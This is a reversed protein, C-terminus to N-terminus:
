IIKDMLHKCDILFAYLRSVLPIKFNKEKMLNWLENMFSDKKRWSLIHGVYRTRVKKWYNVDFVDSYGDLKGLLDLAMMTRKCKDCRSCNLKGSDYYAENGYKNVLFERWCVDLFRKSLPHDAILETKRVRSKGGDSVFIETSETSLLPALIQVCHEVVKNDFSFHEFSTCSAISYKRFLKQLSLVTSILRTTVCQNFNYGGFLLGMNSEVPLLPLNVTEAFEGVRVLAKEFSAHAKDFVDSYSGINFHTLMTIKYGDPCNEDLGGLIASLSDVGLSCGCGVENGGFNRNTLEKCSIRIDKDKKDGFIMKLIPLVSTTIHYYLKESMPADAVIDQKTKIAPLLSMVVFADAVEDCFYRGYSEPASFWIVEDIGQEEDSIRSAYCCNNGDKYLYPKGIRIM